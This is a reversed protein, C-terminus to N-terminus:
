CFCVYDNSNKIIFLLEKYNNLKKSTSKKKIYGYNKGKDFLIFKSKGSIRM